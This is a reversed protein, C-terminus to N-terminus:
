KSEIKKNFFVNHNTKFLHKDFMSKLSPYIKIPSHYILNGNIHTLINYSVDCYCRIGFCKRCFCSCISTNCVWCYMDRIYQKNVSTDNLKTKYILSMNISQFITNFSNETCSISIFGFPTIIASIPNKITSLIIIGSYSNNYSLINNYQKICYSPTEIFSYTLNNSKLIELFKFITDFIRNIEKDIRSKIEKNVRIKNLAIQPLFSIILGFIDSYIIVDM